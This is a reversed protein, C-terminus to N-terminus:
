VSTSASVYPFYLYIYMYVNIVIYIKIKMEITGVYRSTLPLQLVNICSKPPHLPTTHPSQMTFYTIGRVTAGTTARDNLACLRTPHEFGLTLIRSGFVQCCTHIDCTQSSPRLFPNGAECFTHCHSRLPWSAGDAVTIYSTEM